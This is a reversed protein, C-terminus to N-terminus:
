LSNLIRVPEPKDPIMSPDHNILKGDRFQLCIGGTGGRAFYAPFEIVRDEIEFGDSFRDRMAQQVRPAYESPRGPGLLEQVDAISAGPAIQTRMLDYLAAEDGFLRYRLSAPSYYVTWIAAAGALVAFGATTALIRRIPRAM